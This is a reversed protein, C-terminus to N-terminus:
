FPIDAEDAEPLDNIVIDTVPESAGVAAAVGEVLEASKPAVFEPALQIKRKYYDSLENFTDVNPKEVDFVINDNVADPPPIVVGDKGKVKPLAMISGVNAYTNGNAENHTVQIQCYAGIIKVLDFGKLEEETFPVGRWKNLDKYLNATKWLSNTYVQEITYPTGDEKTVDGFLEWGIIVQEVLAEKVGGPTKRMVTQTGIDILEYCRAVYVGEPAKEFDGGEPQKALLSM